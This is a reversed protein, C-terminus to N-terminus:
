YVLTPKNSEHSNKTAININSAMHETWKSNFHEKRYCALVMNKEEFSLLQFEDSILYKNIHM